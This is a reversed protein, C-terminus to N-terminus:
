PLWVKQSALLQTLITIFQMPFLVIAKQDMHDTSVLLAVFNDGPVVELAPNIEQQTDKVVKALIGKKKTTDPCFSALRSCFSANLIIDEIPFISLLEACSWM